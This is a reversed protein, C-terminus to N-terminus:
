MKQKTTGIVDNQINISNDFIYNLYNKVIIKIKGVGFTLFKQLANFYELPLVVSFCPSIELGASPQGDTRQTARLNQKTRISPHSSIEFSFHGGSTSIM